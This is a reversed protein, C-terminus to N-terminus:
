HELHLASSNLEMISLERTRQSPLAHGGSLLSLLKRAVSLSPQGGRADYCRCEVFGGSVFDSRLVVSRNFVGEPCIGVGIVIGARDLRADLSVSVRREGKRGIRYELSYLSFVDSGGEDAGAGQIRSFVVSDLVAIFDGVSFSVNGPGSELGELRFNRVFQESVGRLLEICDSLSFVPKVALKYSRNAAVFLFSEVSPRGGVSKGSVLVSSLDFFSFRCSWSPCACGRIFMSQCVAAKSLVGQPDICRRLREGSLLISDLRSDM